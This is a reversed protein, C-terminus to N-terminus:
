ECLLVCLLQSRFREGYSDGPECSKYIILHMFDDMHIDNRLLSLARFRQSSLIEADATGM